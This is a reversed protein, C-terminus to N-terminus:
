LCQFWLSVFSLGGTQLQRLGDREAASDTSIGEVASSEQPFVGLRVASLRRTDAADTPLLHVRGATQQTVQLRVSLGAAGAADAAFTELVHLRVHSAVRPDFRVAAGDAVFAERSGARQPAVLLNVCSLSRVDALAAPLGEDLAASQLRVAPTVGPLDM